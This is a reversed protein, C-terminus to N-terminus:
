LSKFYSNLHVNTKQKPRKPESYSEYSIFTGTRKNPKQVLFFFFSKKKYTLSRGTPNTLTLIMHISLIVPILCDTSLTCLVQSKFVLSVCLISVSCGPKFKGCDLLLNSYKYIYRQHHIIWILMFLKFARTHLNFNKLGM